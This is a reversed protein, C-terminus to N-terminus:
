EEDEVGTDFDRVFDWYAESGEAINMLSMIDNFCATIYEEDSMPPEPFINPYEYYVWAFKRRVEPPQDYILANTRSEVRIAMWIPYTRLQRYWNEIIMEYTERMPLTAESMPIEYDTDVREPVPAKPAKLKQIRQSKTIKLNTQEIQRRVTRGSPRVPQDTRIDYLTSQQRIKRGTMSQLARISAETIKKPIARPQPTEYGRSKYYRLRALYKQREQRYSKLLKQKKTM